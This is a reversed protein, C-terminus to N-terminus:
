ANAGVGDDTINGSGSGVDLYAEAPAEIEYDISINRLNEHHGGVRVINGTQEIPPHAAIERVREESGGWGSKVRGFIHIRNGTGTTLHINGSGTSVSLEVKGNVTLTREFTAEAALAPLAALALAATAAVLLHKM